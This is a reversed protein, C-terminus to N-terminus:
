YMPIINARQRNLVAGSNNRGQGHETSMKRCIEMRYQINCQTQVYTRAKLCCRSFLVSSFQVLCFLFLYIFLYFFFQLESYTRLPNKCLVGIRNHKQELVYVVLLKTPKRIRSNFHLKWCMGFGYHLSICTSWKITKPLTFSYITWLVFWTNIRAFVTCFWQSIAVATGHTHIHVGLNCFFFFPLFFLFYM